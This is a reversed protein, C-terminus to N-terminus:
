RRRQLRGNHRGRDPERGIPSLDKGKDEQGELGHFPNFSSISKTGYHKLVLLQLVLM